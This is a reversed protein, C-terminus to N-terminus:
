IYSVEWIYPITEENGHDLGDTLLIIIPVLENRDINSNIILNFAKEFACKFLTYGEPKLKEYCSELNQDKIDVNKFVEFATKNFGILACKDKPSLSERERCYTDIAQLAAGMMNPMKDLIGPNTPQQTKSSMSGSSDLLFISYVGIPHICKFAHGNSTWHYYINQLNNLEPGHWLERQCYEPTQHSKYSCKWNCLGFKKKEDSSANMKFQLINQWFYSCKCEYLNKGRNLKIVDNNNIYYNAEFFHTHGQGQERCYEDCIFIEASEGETLKIQQNDKKVIAISEEQINPENPQNVYITSSKINGHYCFHYDEHGKPSICYNKCQKCQFGCIHVKSRCDHEGEHEFESIPIKMDCKKQKKRQCLIKQYRVEEGLNTKYIKEEKIESSEIECCDEKCLYPCDHYLEDCKHGKRSLKCIENNCKECKLNDSNEHNFVHCCERDRGDKSCLECKHKCKHREPTLECICPGEHGNEKSCEKKCESLENFLYCCNNEKICPHFHPKKCICKIGKKEHGYELCCVENCNLNKKDKNGEIIYYCPKKCFHIEKCKHEYLKDDEKIKEHGYFHACLEKCGNAEDKLDCIKDCLHIDNSCYCEGEHGYKYCCEEKCKKGEALRTKGTLVCKCPCDHENEKKQCLHPGKHNAQHRCIDKCKEFHCISNCLHDEAKNSCLCEGKHGAPLCCQQECGIKSYDKLSCNKNCIHEGIDMSCLHPGSHSYISKCKKNCNISIKNLGCLENCLHVSSCKHEGSHEVELTCDENCDRAKGKYICIGNCKHESKSKNCIHENKSEHGQELIYQCNGECNGSLEAYKCKENCYHKSIDCLHEKEGHGAKLKCKKKCNRANQYKCPEQCNCEGCLCKGEHSFPLICPKEFTDLIKCNKNCIHEEKDM